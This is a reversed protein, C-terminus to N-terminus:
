YSSKHHVRFTFFLLVGYVVLLAIWHIQISISAFPLSAFSKIVIIQYSSIAWAFFGMFKGIMPIVMGSIGSLFGFAMAYPVVPLVLVNVPLSVLSVTRFYYILLPLVFIQASLTMIAIDRIGGLEPFVKARASLIPELYILGIVALFSLQFGIDFRLVYPNIMVMAFAALLIINKTDSLRGFSSAFVVLLGMIAARVVSASAGTLITFFIIAFVTAFFAKRRKVFFLFIFLVASAIITINYGSIALIHTTSTQRFAEKVDPPMDQRSGLLIGGIYSAAPEAVSRKVAREFNNRLSFIKEYLYIRSKEWLMLSFHHSAVNKASIISQIEQRRLYMVYDFSDFNEPIRVDGEIYLMEGFFREPFTEAFVLTRENVVFVTENVYIRKVIFPFRGYITSREFDGDVYGDVAILNKQHPVKKVQYALELLVSSKNQAIYFRWMGFALSFIICAVLFGAKRISVKRRSFQVIRGYGTVAFIFLVFIILVYLFLKPIDWISAIFTGALSSFILYGLIQSKHM